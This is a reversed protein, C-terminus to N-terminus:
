YGKRSERIADLIDATTAKTTIGSIAFPSQSTKKYVLSFTEGGRRKILVVEKKATDLLESLRKRAESYQYAKM